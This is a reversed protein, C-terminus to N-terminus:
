RRETASLCRRSRTVRTNFCQTHFLVLKKWKKKEKKKFSWNSFLVTREVLGFCKSYTLTPDVVPGFLRPGLLRGRGLTVSRYDSSSIVPSIMFLKRSHYSNRHPFGRFQVRFSSQSTLYKSYSPNLQCQINLRGGGKMQNLDM